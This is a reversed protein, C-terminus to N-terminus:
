TASVVPRVQDMLERDLEVGLREALALRAEAYLEALEGTSRRLEDPEPARPMAARARAALEGDIRQSLGTAGRWPEGALENWARVLITQVFMTSEFFALWLEGRKRKVHLWWLWDWAHADLERLEGATMPAAPPATALREALRAAVGAKDVLAHFGDALWPDPEPDGDHFFFDVKTPGEYLAIATYPAHWAAEVFMGLPRGLRAAIEGRAEWL